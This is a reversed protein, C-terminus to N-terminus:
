RLVFGEARQDLGQGLGSMSWIVKEEQLEVLAARATQSRRRLWARCAAMLVMARVSLVACAGPSPGATRPGPPRQQKPQSFSTRGGSRSEADARARELKWKSFVLSSKLAHVVSARLHVSLVLRLLCTSHLPSSQPSTLVCKPSATAHPISVGDGAHVLGAFTRFGSVGSPRRCATGAAPWRDM